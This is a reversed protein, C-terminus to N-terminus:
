HKEGDLHRVVRGLVKAVDILAVTNKTLQESMSERVSQELQRISEERKAMAMEHKDARTDLTTVFTDQNEKQVRSHNLSLYALALVAVVPVSLNPLISLLGEM